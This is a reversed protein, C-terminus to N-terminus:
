RTVQERLSDDAEEGRDLLFRELEVLFANEGMPVAMAHEDDRQIRDTSEYGLAEIDYSNLLAPAPGEIEALQRYHLPTADVEEQQLLAAAESGEEVWVEVGDLDDPLEGGPPVAFQIQSDLYPATLAIERRLESDRTLGGAILDLQFGRMAAALASETGEFYDIEADIEEAFGEILDIEVGTPEKESLDVWPPNHIVGVRMTGGEVRDLTGEPDRPFQCGAAALSLTVAVAALARV